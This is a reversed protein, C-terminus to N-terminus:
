SDVEVARVISMQQAGRRDRRGSSLSVIELDVRRPNPGMGFAYTSEVRWVAGSSSYRSRVLDGPKATDAHEALLEYEPAREVLQWGQEVLHEAVIDATVRTLFEIRAGDPWKVALMADALEKRAAKV